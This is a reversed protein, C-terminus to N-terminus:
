VAVTSINFFSNPMGKSMCNPMGKILINHLYKNLQAYRKLSKVIYKCMDYKWFLPMIIRKRCMRPTIIGRFATNAANVNTQLDNIYLITESYQTIKTAHFTRASCMLAHHLL